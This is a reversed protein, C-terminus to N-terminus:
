CLCRPEDIPDRLHRTRPKMACTTLPAQTTQDSSRHRRLVVRIPISVPERGPQVCCVHRCDQPWRQHIVVYVKSWEYVHAM